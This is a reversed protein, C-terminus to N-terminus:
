WPEPKKSRSALMKKRELWERRQAIAAMGADFDARHAEILDAIALLEDHLQCGRDRTRWGYGGEWILERQMAQRPDDEWTSWRSATDSCTMCTLLAARQQGLDKVRRFFAERTLTPAKEANLGCETVGPGARWPLQPRLIHDVPDKM